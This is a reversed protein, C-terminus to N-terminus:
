MLNLVIYNRRGFRPEDLLKLSEVKIRFLRNIGALIDNPTKFTDSFAPIREAFAAMAEPLDKPQVESYSGFLQLGQLNTGWKEPETWIAVAVSPNVAANKGHQTEPNTLIFLELKENFGYHATNIYSTDGTTALSLTTHQSLIDTISEQLLEDPYKEHSFQVAIKM